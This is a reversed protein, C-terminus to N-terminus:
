LYLYYNLPYLYYDACSPASIQAEKVKRLYADLQGTLIHFKKSEAPPYPPPPANGPHGPMDPRNGTFCAAYDFPKRTYPSYHGIPIIFIFISIIIIFGAICAPIVMRKNM